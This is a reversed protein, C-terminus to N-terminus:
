PCLSDSKSDELAFAIGVTAAIIQNDSFSVSVVPRKATGEYKLTRITNKGAKINEECSPNGLLQIVNSPQTASTFLLPSISNKDLIGVDEMKKESVFFGSDFLALSNYPSGYIWNDLRRIERRAVPRGANDLEAGSFLIMYVNPIGRTEIFAGQSSILIKDPGLDFLGPFWMVGEGIKEIGPRIKSFTKLTATKASQNVSFGKKKEASFAQYFTYGLYIVLVLLILNFIRWVWKIWRM